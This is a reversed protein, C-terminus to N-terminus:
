WGEQNYQPGRGSTKRGRMVSLSCRRVSSGRSGAMLSSSRFMRCSMRWSACSWHITRRGRWWDWASSTEEACALHCSTSDGVLCRLRNRPFFFVGARLRNCLDEVLLKSGTAGLMIPCEYPEHPGRMCATRRFLRRLPWLSPLSKWRGPAQGPHHFLKVTSWRRWRPSCPRAERVSSKLRETAPTSMRAILFFEMMIRIKFAPFGNMLAPDSRGGWRVARGPLSYIPAAGGGTWRPPVSYVGGLMAKFWSVGGGRGQEGNRSSHNRALGSFAGLLVIAMDTSMEFANSM